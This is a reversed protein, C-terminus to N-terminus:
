AVKLARYRCREGKVKISQLEMGAARVVRTLTVACAKWGIAACIEAETAGEVTLVMELMFANKSGPRPLVAEGPVRPAAKERPAKAAKPAKPARAPKAAKEPAKPAVAAAAALLATRKEFSAAAEETIVKWEGTIAEPAAAPLEPAKRVAASSSAPARAPRKGATVTITGAEEDTSVTLGDRYRTTGSLSKQAAATPPLTKVAAPAAKRPHVVAEGDIVLVEFEPREALAALVRRQGNALTSFRQFATQGTLQRYAAVLQAATLTEIM